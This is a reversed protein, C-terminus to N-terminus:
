PLQNLINKTEEDYNHTDKKIEAEFYEQFASHKKSPTKIIFFPNNEPIAFLKTLFTKRLFEQDFLPM